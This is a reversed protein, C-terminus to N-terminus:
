RMLALLCQAADARAPTVCGSLDDSKRCQFRVPSQCSESSTDQGFRENETASQRSSSELEPITTTDSLWGMRRYFTSPSLPPSLDEENDSEWGQSIEIAKGMKRRRTVQRRIGPAHMGQGRMADIADRALKRLIEDRNQARRKGSLAELPSNEISVTDDSDYWVVMSEASRSRGTCITSMTTLVKSRLPCLM